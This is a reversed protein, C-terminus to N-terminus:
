HFKMYFITAKGGCASTKGDTGYTGITFSIDNFTNIMYTYYIYIYNAFSSVPNLFLIVITCM